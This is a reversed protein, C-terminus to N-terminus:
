ESLEVKLRFLGHCFLLVIDISCQFYARQTHQMQTYKPVWPVQQHLRVNHIRIYEKYSCMLLM